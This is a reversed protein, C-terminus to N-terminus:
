FARNYFENWVSETIYMRSSLTDKIDYQSCLSICEYYVVSLSALTRLVVNHHYLLKMMFILRREDIVYSLSVSKCFYQLSRLSERWCCNFIHRFANNWAIDLDYMNVTNHSMIECGYILKALCYTSM